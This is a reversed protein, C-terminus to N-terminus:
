KDEWWDAETKLLAEILEKKKMSYGGSVKGRSMKRLDTISMKELDPTGQSQRVITQVSQDAAEPGPHIQQVVPTVDRLEGLNIDPVKEEKHKRKKQNLLFKEMEWQKQMKNAEQATINHHRRRLFKKLRQQKSGV